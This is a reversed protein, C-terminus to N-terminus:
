GWAAPCSSCSLVSKTIHCRPPPYLPLSGFTDRAAAMVASLQESAVPCSSVNAAPLWSRVDSTLSFSTKNARKTVCGGSNSSWTGSVFLLHCRTVNQRAWKLPHVWAQLFFYIYFFCKVPEILRKNKGRLRRKASSLARCTGFHTNVLGHVLLINNSLLGCCKKIGEIVCENKSIVRCRLDVIHM